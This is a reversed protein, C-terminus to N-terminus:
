NKVISIITKLLVNEYGMSSISQSFDITFFSNGGINKQLEPLKFIEM